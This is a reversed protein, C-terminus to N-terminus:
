ALVAQERRWAEQQKEAFDAERQRWEDVENKYAAYYRISARVYSEPVRFYAAAARIKETSEGESAMVTDIVQAVTLRTGALSARRGGAGDRFVILPNEDHRLGEDLLREYLAAASTGAERARRDLAEKLDPRLRLSTPEKAM